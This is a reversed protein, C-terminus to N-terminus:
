TAEPQPRGDIPQQSLYFIDNPTLRVLWMAALGTVTIWIIFSLHIGIAFGTALADNTGLAAVLEATAVEYPGIGSPTLPISVAFNATMMILLYAAYHLDLGFAEGFFYYSTAECMWGIISFAIAPAALSPERLARMGELFQGLLSKIRGRVDATLWALLRLRELLDPDFYRATAVGLALGLLALGALGWFTGALIVPVVGLSFAAAVLLVFTLGDLLTEVVIVTAVLESRPIGYRQSTIQIRIVDGARLLLVGNAMNHVLFIGLLGRFPIKRHKGLFVRWRATHFTKALTFLALGPPVWLWNADPLTALAESINVRWALLVLFGGTLLVQFGFRAVNLSGKSM